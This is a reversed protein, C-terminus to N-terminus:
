KNLVIKKVVKNLGNEITLLYVGDQLNEINLVETTGSTEKSVIARGQIDNLSVISKETTEPLTINIIGKSPNPYVTV